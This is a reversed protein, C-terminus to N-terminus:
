SYLKRLAGWKYENQKKHHTTHTTPYHFDVLHVAVSIDIPFYINNTYMFLYMFCMGDYICVYLYIFLNPM